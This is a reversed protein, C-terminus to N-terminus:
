RPKPTTRSRSSEGRRPGGVETRVTAESGIAGILAAAEEGIGAASRDAANGTIVSSGCRAIPGAVRAADLSPPSGDNAHVILRPFDAGDHRAILASCSAYHAIATAVSGFLVGAPRSRGHSGVCVLDAELNSIGALLAAADAGRILIPKLQPVEERARRLASASEERLRAM